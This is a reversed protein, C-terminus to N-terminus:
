DHPLVKEPDYKYFMQTQSCGDFSLPVDVRKALKRLQRRLVDFRYANRDVIFHGQSKAITLIESECWQRPKRM